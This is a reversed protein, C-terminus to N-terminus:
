QSTVANTAMFEMPERDSKRRNCEPCSIVLNTFESTGGRNVPVYHDVHYDSGVPDLCYFCRGDQYAYLTRIDSATPEGAARRRAKSARVNEPHAARWRRVCERGKTAYWRHSARKRSAIGAPTKWYDPNRERYKRACERYLERHEARYKRNRALIKDHNDQAYNKGRESECPICITMLGGRNRPSKYFHDTTAPYEGGCVRCVKTEEAVVPDM